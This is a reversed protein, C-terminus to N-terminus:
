PTENESLIKKALVCMGNEDTPLATTERIWSTPQVMTTLSQTLLIVAKM